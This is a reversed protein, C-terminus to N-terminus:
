CALRVEGISEVRAAPDDRGAAPLGKPLDNSLFGKPLGNSFDARGLVACPRGAVPLGAGDSRGAYSAPSAEVRGAEPLDTVDPLGAYWVLEGVRGAM